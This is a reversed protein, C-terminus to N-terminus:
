WNFHAMFIGVWQGAQYKARALFEVHPIPFWQLGLGPVNAAEYEHTVQVHFGRLVEYGIETYEVDTPREGYVMRRDAETLVYLQRTIGFMAFPGATQVPGVDEQQAMYSAGLVASKGVNVALRAACGAGAQNATYGPSGLVITSGDHAFGTLLLEGKDNHVGLEVNYTEQGEGFGISRTAATHDPLNLGYGLLYHGARVHLWERPQWLIYSRRYEKAGKPGYLGYSADVWVEPSVHLALEVDNQMVFATRAGGKTRIDLYRADGGLAVYDPLTVMGFLPQGANEQSFSAFDESTLRGYNHLAGGGTPSVHCASCSQYQGRITEPFALAIGAQLFLLAALLTKV